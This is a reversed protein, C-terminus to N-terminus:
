PSPCPRTLAKAPCENGSGSVIARATRAPVQGEGRGEGWRSSRHPSPPARGLTLHVTKGKVGLALPADGKRRRGAVASKDRLITVATRGSTVVTTTTANGSRAHSVTWGSIDDAM